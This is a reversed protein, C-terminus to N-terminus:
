RSIVFQKSSLLADDRYLVISYLGNQYDGLFVELANGNADFKAILSGKSDILHVQDGHQIDGRILLYTSAPNPYVQLILQSNNEPLQSLNLGSTKFVGGGYTGAYIEAGDSILINSGYINTSTM